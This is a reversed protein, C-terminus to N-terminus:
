GEKKRGRKWGVNKAFGLWCTSKKKLERKTRKIEAAENEGGKLTTVKKWNRNESNWCLRRRRTGTETEEVHDVNWWMSRAFNTVNRKCQCLWKRNVRSVHISVACPLTVDSILQLHMKDHIGISYDMHLVNARWLFAM